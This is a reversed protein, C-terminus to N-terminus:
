PSEAVEDHGAHAEAVAATLIKRDHADQASGILLVVPITMLVVVGFSLNIDRDSFMAPVALLLLLIQVILRNVERRVIGEAALERAKGNLARVAERDARADALAIVAMAFVASNIIIWLAEVANVHIM